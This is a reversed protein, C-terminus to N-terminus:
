GLGFGIRSKRLVSWNALKGAGPWRSAPTWTSPPPSKLAIWSLRSSFAANRSTCKLGWFRLIPIVKVALIQSSKADKSRRTGEWWQLVFGRFCLKDAITSCVIVNGGVVMLGNQGFKLHRFPGGLSSKKPGGEPYSRGLYGGTAHHPTRKKIKCLTM